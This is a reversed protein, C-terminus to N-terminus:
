REPAVTMMMMDWLPLGIVKSRELGTMKENTQNWEVILGTEDILTVGESSQEIIARFKEESVRLEEEARKRESIDRAAAFVGQMEGAENKYVTANYLVDTTKGSIHRITLPYDRVLGEALVTQYGKQAKEPETFYNSFDDGILQERPIGTIAETSQNVDTIKGDPSITVLPDLSAEILSRNYAGAIQLAKEARRREVLLHIRDFSVALHSALASLYGQESETPVLVGESGFTGMGISGLHRDFLIIPVNVLTHNELRAVTEKNTREDKQADEVIVIGKAKAIEELMRDGEISLKATGDESMVTEAMPGGAVLSKFYKKDETLLYAWLNQYGIINKVEDRAANLVDTYTEARELQQSLRLLSQSHKEQERLAEEARKRETIDRQIGFHGLIRGQSDHFAIYEGEIWIPTGDMKREDSEIRLKGTDFFRRWIDRGHELNHEFFDNPTLSLMQERTAGYQALMADNIQTIRQHTFIYDLAQEKDVTEDWRVPADLMMYFCGDISQSFFARLEEESKRLAEEAKRRETIDYLTSRSILFNGADDYIATSSVLVSLFTGDKRILEFELDRIQGFEKFLSFNDKFRQLSPATILDTFRIKGIIEERTYGLWQLETDNMRVILSQDNLSHYGCPAHDYLDQIEETARKRETIDIFTVIVQAIKDQKDLIPDANVLVWVNSNKDPRHVGMVFNRLSQCMAFVQNAPYEEVSMVSGDERLFHWSPDFAMKGLLQDETLGLLEQAVPNSMLISTDAGHVVVAAHINQLLLRYKTESRLIEQNREDLTDLMSNFERAISAAEDTGTINSRATQVGRKVESITDQVAYLRRTILLGMRWAIFSGIIIAGLAYLIGIITIRNISELATEQGIGVRVWGVHMNGLMAPAVVDVLAASRSITTQRIDQPLDLLYLGLRNKDTSALIHGDKDTLIVFLTEPYSSEADVIEQLGAVDNAAIWEATSTALSQSMAVAEQTQVDLLMTRQRVTLDLIFLTMMVAHIAAVSLILRGRLTGSLFSRLKRLTM